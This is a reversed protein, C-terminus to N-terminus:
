RAEVVPPDFREDAEARVLHIHDGTYRRRLSAMSSEVNREMVAVEFRGEETFYPFLVVVHVHQRLIPAEGFERNVSGIYFRGPERVALLYLVRELESVAYGVNETYRSYRVSRVDADTPQWDRFPNHLRKLEIALNRSWDLGFYPDRDHERSLSFRHGRQDLHKTKLPEIELYRGTHPEHIGDVVWKAFGSCNFGPKQDQLVLSEIFVLNGEADMAGDEADPLDEIVDRIRNVMTEVRRYAERNRRDLDPFLETWAVSRRTSEMVRAFPETLAREFRMNVPVGRHVRTDALYLDLQTMGGDTPFLRVFYDPHDLLFVKIQDIEGSELDRRVVYTGASDIEFSEGGRHAFVYYLSSRWEEVWFRVPTPQRRNEIVRTRANRVQSYEAHFLDAVERRAGSNDPVRRSAWHSFEAANLLQAPLLVCALLAVVASLGRRRAVSPRGLRPERRSNRRQESGM